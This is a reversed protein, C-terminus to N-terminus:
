ITLNPKKNYINEFLQVYDSKGCLLTSALPMVTRIKNLLSSALERIDWQAHEDDRLRIFHYIQRLNMSMIINRRHSNTLIYEADKGFNLGLEVYAKNTKDVIKKFEKSLGTIEINKPVTNGLNPDYSCKLITSIRHRKLQAFNSSSLSVQFTIEPLEFERSPRDFFEMDSFLEKFFEEKDKQEMELAFDLADRYSCNRYEAIFAAIIKEDANETASVIEPETSSFIEMNDSGPVPLELKRLKTDFTSPEPFLLISPAVPEVLSYITKGMEVVEQYRSISFKRLMSELVRANVTVGVQGMTALSLIYRADEKAWGELLRRNRKESALESNTEFIYNRLIEYAKKYFSNQLEITEKYLSSASDSAKISEPMYYDGDLTVYRQSKETYSALRFDELEELALRSIDMVDFNFVAHEAVSHHGMEFIINKNSKRSKTVDKLAQERLSTVSDPSRSIRAYAASFTEPTYVEATDGGMISTDINFGALKIEM